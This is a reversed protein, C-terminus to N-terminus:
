GEIDTKEKEENEKEEGLKIIIKDLIETDPIYNFSTVLGNGIIEYDINFMNLYTIVESKTWGTVDTLINNYNNTKLYIKSGIIVNENKNPYQNTVVDGNGILIPTLGLNILEKTVDKTNKNIYSKLNVNKKDDKNSERESLNKYKAISEIITKTMKGMSSTSGDLDKVAVYIIYEPNEKPFIGAFSRINKNSDTVYKGNETYQATGTKGIVRVLDTHYTRGTAVKDETNVTMDMLEKIKNVTDTNYVKNLETRKSEYIIKNDNDTIKDVIYPKLVVGDNTLVTLAQIMQIPTITIGQGYSASALESDYLFGVKGNLEGYLELGTKQGFGLSEYYELLKEKGISQALLTAAVNSSYTFGVDYSIKGWGKNNWDSIIYNDVKISGSSFLDDGKYKGEEMNSMFSFIKMTSGPEYTYSVLPNKYNVINLKNADFTPNSASGVIAGTKANAVTITVWDTTNSSVFDSIANEIFM